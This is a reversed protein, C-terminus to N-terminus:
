NKQVYEIGLEVIQDLHWSMSHLIALSTKNKSEQNKETKLDIEKKTILKALTEDAQNIIDAFNPETNDSPNAKRKSKFFGFGTSNADKSPIMNDKCDGM